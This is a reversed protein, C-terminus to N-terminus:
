SSNELLNFKWFPTFLKNVRPSREWLDNQRNRPMKNRLFTSYYVQNIFERPNTQRRLPVCLVAFSELKKKKLTEIQLAASFSFDVQKCKRPSGMWQIVTIISNSRRHFRTKFALYWRLLSSILSLWSTSIGHEMRLSFCAVKVCYARPSFVNYLNFLEWVQLLRSIEMTLKLGFSWDGVQMENDVVIM